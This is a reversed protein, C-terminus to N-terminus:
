DVPKVQSMRIGSQLQIEGTMSDFYKIKCKDEAEQELITAVVPGSADKIGNVLVVKGSVLVDKMRQGEADSMSIEADNEITFYHDDVAKGQDGFGGLFRNFAPRMAMITPTLALRQLEFVKEPLGGGTLFELCENTFHNCSHTLLDYQTINSYRPAVEKKLFTAFEQQTVFTYGIRLVSLEPIQVSKELPEGWPATLPEGFAKRCPPVSRFVQGGYWYESGYCLMGSHVAAVKKGVLVEGLKDAFGNSIDYLM